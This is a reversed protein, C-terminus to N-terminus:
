LERTILQKIHQSRRSVNAVDLGVIRAVERASPMPSCNRANIIAIDTKDLKGALMADFIADKVADAMGIAKNNAAYDVPSVAMSDKYEIAEKLIDKM